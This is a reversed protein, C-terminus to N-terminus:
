LVTFCNNYININKLLSNKKLYVNNKIIINLCTKNFIYDM